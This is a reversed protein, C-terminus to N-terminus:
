VNYEALWWVYDRLGVSMKTSGMQEDATTIRTEYGLNQLTWRIESLGEKDTVLKMGLARLTQFGYVTLWLYRLDFVNETEIVQANRMETERLELVQPLLSLTDLNRLEEVDMFMSSYGADLHERRALNLENRVVETMADEHADPPLKRLMKLLDFEIASYHELGLEELFRIQLEKWELPKMQHLKLQELVTIVRNIGAKKTGQILSITDVGSIERLWPPARRTRPSHYTFIGVLYDFDLTLLSTNMCLPTVDLGRIRNQQLLLEQLEHNRCLPLLDLNHIKNAWLRLTRLKSCNGLPALDISELGNQHLLITDLNLCNSLPSLDVNELENDWLSLVKLEKFQSLPSLEIWTLKQKSLDIEESNMDVDRTIETGDTNIMTLQVM